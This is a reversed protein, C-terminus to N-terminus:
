GEYTVKRGKTERDRIRGREKTMRIRNVNRKQLILLEERVCPDRQGAAWPRTPM